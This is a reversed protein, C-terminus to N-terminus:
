GNMLGRVGVRMNHLVFSFTMLNKVSCMFLENAFVKSFTIYPSKCPFQQHKVIQRQKLLIVKLIFYTIDAEIRQSMRVVEVSELTM